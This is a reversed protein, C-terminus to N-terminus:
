FFVFIAGDATVEISCNLCIHASLPRLALQQASGTTLEWKQRLLFLLLLFSSSPPFSLSFSISIVIPISPQDPDEKYDTTLHLSIPPPPPPLSNISQHLHAKSTLLYLSPFPLVSGLFPNQSYHFDQRTTVRELNKFVKRSPLLFNFSSPLLFIFLSLFTELNYQISFIDEYKQKEREKVSEIERCFCKSIVSLCRYGDSRYDNSWKKEVRERKRNMIM